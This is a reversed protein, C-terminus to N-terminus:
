KEEKEERCDCYYDYIIKGIFFLVLVAALIDLYVGYKRIMLWNGGLVYGLYAFAFCWPLSGIFSDFAFKPFNM